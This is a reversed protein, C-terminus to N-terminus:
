AGSLQCKGVVLRLKWARVWFPSSGEGEKLGWLGPAKGEEVWLELPAKVSMTFMAVKTSGAQIDGRLKLLVPHNLDASFPASAPVAEETAGSALKIQATEGPLMYSAELPV